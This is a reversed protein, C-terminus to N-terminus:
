SIFADGHDKEVGTEKAKGMGRGVVWAIALFLAAAGWGWRYGLYEMPFGIILSGLGIGVDYAFYLTGVAAGRRGAEAHEIGYAWSLTHALGFSAGFVTGCLIHRVLGGPMLALGLAAAVNIAIMMPILRTPNKGMGHWGLALRFIVMGLGYCSMLASPWYYGHEVAEQAGYSPIPGYGIAM